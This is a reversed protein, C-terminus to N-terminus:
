PFTNTFQDSSNLKHTTSMFFTCFEVQWVALEAIAEQKSSGTGRTWNWVSNVSNLHSMTMWLLFQIFWQEKHKNFMSLFCATSQFFNHLISINCFLKMKKLLSACFFFGLICFEGSWVNHMKCKQLNRDCLVFCVYM